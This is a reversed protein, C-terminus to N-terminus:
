EHHMRRRYKRLTLAVGSGIAAISLGISSYLPWSYAKKSVTLQSPKNLTIQSLNNQGNDPPNPFITNSTLTDTSDAAKEYDAQKETLIYTGAENIHYSATSFQENYNCAPISTETAEIHTLDLSNSDKLDVPFEVEMEPLEDIPTDNVLLELNFGYSGVMNLAVTLIDNKLLNLSKLFQSDINVLVGQKEFYITEPNVEILTNLHEGTFSTSSDTVSESPTSAANSELYASQSLADYPVLNTDVPLSTSDPLESDNPLLGSDPLESDNPLPKSDPLESDNPLLESDPLEPNEYTSGDRSNDVYIPDYVLEGNKSTLHLINSKTGEYDIYFYHDQEPDLILSFITLQNPEIYSYDTDQVWNTLDTSYWCSALDVNDLTYLWRSTTEGNNYYTASLDIKDSEMVYISQTLKQDDSLHVCSPLNVTGIIEKFGISSSDFSSTDWNIGSTYWSNELATSDWNYKKSLLPSLYDISEGIPVPTIFDNYNNPKITDLNQLENDYIIIPISVETSSLQTTYEGIDVSGKIYNIGPTFSSSDVQWSIPLQVYHYDTTHASVSTPLKSTIDLSSADALPLTLLAQAQSPPNINSIENSPATPQSSTENNISLGCLNTAQLNPFDSTGDSSMDEPTADTPFDSNKYPSVESSPVSDTASTGESSSNSDTSSMGESSPVSDTSSTSESSSNSDTSSTGESSNSDTSSMGEESPVSDTSSTDESSSNSDTSSTDESPVSDTSSTNESSNSDTSSTDKSSNSDTSSVECALDSKGSSSEESSPVSDEFVSISNDSSVGTSTNAIDNTSASTTDTNVLHTLSIATTERALLTHPFIFAVTMTSSFFFRLLFSLRKM